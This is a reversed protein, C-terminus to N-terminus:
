SKVQVFGSDNPVTKQVDNHKRNVTESQDLRFALKDLVVLSINSSESKRFTLAVLIWIAVQRIPQSSIDSM